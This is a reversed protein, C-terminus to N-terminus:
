LRPFRYTSLDFDLFGILFNKNLKQRMSESVIKSVNVNTILSRNQSICPQADKLTTYKYPFNKISFFAGYPFDEYPIHTLTERASDRFSSLIADLTYNDRTLVTVRIRTETNEEGGLSFEKNDASVLSIFCAPLFYTKEDLKDTKNYFYANTQGLELFDGHIILQQEDENSIYTNVEKVTSNATITLGTGSAQPFILRGNEYDTYVNSQTTNGTVFSGNVFFGSNPVDVNSEAVLQRFEGQYGYYGSPIDYANVYKFNNSLNTNYAKVKSSVLRNEFWLYFSSLINHDFQAKM